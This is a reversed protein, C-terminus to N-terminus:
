ETSSTVRIDSIKMEIKFETVLFDWVNLKKVTCKKKGKKDIYNGRVIVKGPTARYISFNKYLKKLRDRNKVTCSLGSDYHITM